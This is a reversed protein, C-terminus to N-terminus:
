AVPVRSVLTPTQRTGPPFLCQLDRGARRAVAVHMEVWPGLGPIRLLLFLVQTLIIGLEAVPRPVGQALQQEEKPSLKEKRLILPNSQILDIAKLNRSCSPLCSPTRAKM